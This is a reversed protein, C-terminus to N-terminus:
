QTSRSSLRTATDLSIWPTSCFSPSTSTLPGLSASLRRRTILAVRRRPLIANMPNAPHAPHIQHCFRLLYLNGSTSLLSSSPAGGHLLHPHPEKTRFSVAKGRSAAHDPAPNGAVFTFIGSSSPNASGPYDCDTAAGSDLTVPADQELLLPFSLGAILQSTQDRQSRDIAHPLLTM